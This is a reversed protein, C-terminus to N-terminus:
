GVDKGPHDAATCGDGEPAPQQQEMARESIQSTCERLVIAPICIRIVRKSGLASLTRFALTSEGVFAAWLGSSDLVVDVDPPKVLDLDPLRNPM